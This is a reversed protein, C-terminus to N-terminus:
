GVATHVFRERDRVGSVREGEREETEGEGETTYGRGTEIIRTIYQTQKNIQKKQNQNKEFHKPM